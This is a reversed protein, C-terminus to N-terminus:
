VKLVNNLWQQYTSGYRGASIEPAQYSYGKYSTSAPKYDGESQEYLQQMRSLEDQAYGKQTIMEQEIQGRQQTGLDRYTDSVATGRLGSRTLGRNAYESELGQRAKEAIPAYYAAMRKEIDSQALNEDFYQEWPLVQSFPTKKVAAGASSGAATGASVTPVPTPAPTPAPAPAQGPINYVQGAYILNPNSGIVSKNANYLDQWKIGYKAAIKSLSDGRQVTYTM